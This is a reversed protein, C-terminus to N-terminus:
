NAHTVPKSVIGLCTRLPVPSLDAFPYSVLGCLKLTQSVVNIEVYRMFVTHSNIVTACYM